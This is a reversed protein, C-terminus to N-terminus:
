IIYQGYQCSIWFYFYKEPGREFSFKHYESERSVMKQFIGGFFNSTIGIFFLNYDASLCKVKHWHSSVAMQHEVSNRVKKMQGNKSKWAFTTFTLHYWHPLFKKHFILPSFAFITSHLINLFRYVMLYWNWWMSVLDFALWGIVVQM